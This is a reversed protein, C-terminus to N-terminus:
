MGDCRNGDENNDNDTLGDCDNNVDDETGGDGDFWLGVLPGRMSDLKPVPGLSHGYQLQCLGTGSIPGRADLGTETHPGTFSQVPVPLAGDQFHSWM